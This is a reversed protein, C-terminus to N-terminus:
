ETKCDKVHLYKINRNFIKLHNHIRSTILVKSHFAPLVLSEVLLFLM